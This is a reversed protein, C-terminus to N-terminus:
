NPKGKGKGKKRNPEGRALAAKKAKNERAKKEREKARKAIRQKARTKEREKKKYAENDGILGSVGSSVKKKQKALEEQAKKAKTRELDYRVGDMVEM